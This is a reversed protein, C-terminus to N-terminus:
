RASILICKSKAGSDNPFSLSHQAGAHLSAPRERSVAAPQGEPRLCPSPIPAPASTHPSEACPHSQECTVQHKCLPKQPHAKQEKLVRSCSEWLCCSLGKRFRQAPWAIAHAAALLCQDGETCHHSSEAAGLVETGRRRIKNPKTKIINHLYDKFGKTINRPSRQYLNKCPLAKVNSLWRSNRELM